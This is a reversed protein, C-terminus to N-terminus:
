KLGREFNFLNGWGGSVKNEYAELVFKLYKADPSIFSLDILFKNVGLKRVASKKSFLMIPYKAIITATENKSIIQFSDKASELASLKNDLCLDKHLVMKSIALIHFGSLYFIAKNAIGTKSLEVINGFDSEAPIIFNEIAKDFLFKASFSNLAYLFSGGFLHVGGGNFFEFQSLNNLFFEKKGKKILRNITQSFLPLDEEDIFPPLEFCNFSDAQSLNNKDLSFIIKHSNDNIFKLWCPDDIKLFLSDKAPKIKTHIINKRMIEDFSIKESHFSKQEFKPMAAVFKSGDGTKLVSMGEKLFASDTTIEYVDDIKKLELILFKFGKDEKADVAKLEDTKSILIKSCIKIKCGNVSIIKGLNIGLQKSIDPNFIDTAKGVFNFSTKPRAFDLSLLQCAADKDSNEILMKYAKVVKYVYDANKMRGEIKLSSVGSDSIEKIFGSLDLDKPSLYFGSKNNFEWKRRCVQACSGRNGSHGGIFSSMLCLGSVGFCLAGHVFIELELKTKQSIMKIQSLSLERALVVRKFGLKQAQLVGFSNHVGMQTSSHIALRPFYDKIIKAIGFDQVIVGDVGVSNIFSLEKLVAKIESEKILTNLTCYVEVSKKHAYCVCDAFEKQTFNLAKTRANFNSLGCYVGGAGAEVAALFSQGAGAPALVQIKKM